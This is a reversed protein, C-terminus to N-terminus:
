ASWGWEGCENGAGDSVSRKGKEKKEKREKERKREREEGERGGEGRMKLPVGM